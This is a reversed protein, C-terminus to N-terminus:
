PTSCYFYTGSNKCTQKPGCEKDLTWAEWVLDADLYSCGGSAGSCGAWGLRKLIQTGDCKRETEWASSSTKCKTGKATFTGTETCCGATPSCVGADQCAIYGFSDKCAQNPKCQTAQKWESWVMDAEAYSCSSGKGSCGYTATRTLIWGGKDNTECKQESDAGGQTTTSCAVGKAQFFGEKTCCGSSPTCQTKTTCTGTGDWSIECSEKAACSKSDTWPSWVWYSSSFEFCTTSSGSCGPKATRMQVKNGPPAGFCQYETDLLKEGCVTAKPAYEGEATCCTSGPKCKPAGVCVGAKLPDSVKCVEFYACSKVVQWPGWYPTQTTAPCTTGKGDCTSVAKRQQIMGGPDGSSCKYETAIIANGCPSGAVEPKHTCDGQSCVDVTCHNGDNCEGNNLCNPPKGCTPAASGSGPVCASDGTCTQIVQWAGFSADAPNTGCATASAGDCAALKERKKIAPGDCAWETALAEKGCPTGKPVVAGSGLDCCVGDKCCGPKAVSKCVGSGVDCTGGVCPDSSVCDFNDKCCGPAPSGLCAGAGDCADGISCASGDDCSKGKAAPQLGLQGKKPDCVRCPDAPHPGAFYCQGDAYCAGASINHTCTGGICVDTTCPIGDDCDTPCTAAVEATDSAGGADDSSSDTTADTAGGTDGATAGDPSADLAGGSDTGAAGDQGSDVAGGGDGPQIGGGGVDFVIGDPDAGGGGTDTNRPTAAEGSCGAFSLAAALAGACRRFLAADAGHPQGMPRSLGM